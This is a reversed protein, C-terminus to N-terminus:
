RRGFMAALTQIFGRPVFEIETFVPAKGQDPRYGCLQGVLEPAVDFIFDVDAEEGGEAAQRKRLRDSIAALAAPPEGDVVLSILGRNPDHVVSWVQRGDHFGRGASFMVHEEVQGSIVEAGQSLRGLLKSTPLDFDQSQIVTWGTELSPDPRM